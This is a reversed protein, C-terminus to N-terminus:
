DWDEDRGLPGSSSSPGVTVIVPQGFEPCSVIACCMGRFMTRVYTGVVPVSPM